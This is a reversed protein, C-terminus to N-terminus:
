RHGCLVPVLQLNVFLQLPQGRLGTIKLRRGKAILRRHLAVIAGIGYSDVFRVSSLDLEVDEQADALAEIQARFKGGYGTDLEGCVDYKRVM